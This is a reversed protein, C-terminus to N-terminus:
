VLKQTENWRYVLCSQEFNEFWKFATHNDSGSFSNMSEEIYRFSFLSSRDRGAISFGAGETEQRLVDM